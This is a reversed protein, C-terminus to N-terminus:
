AGCASQRSRKQGTQVLGTPDGSFDGLQRPQQAALVKIKLDGM